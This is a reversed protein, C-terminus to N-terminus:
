YKLLQLTGRFAGNYDIRSSEVIVDITQGYIDKISVRDLVDLCLDGRYEISYREHLKYYANIRNASNNILEERTNRSIGLIPNDYNAVSGWSNGTDRYLIKESRVVPAPDPDDSTEPPIKYDRLVFRTQKFRETELKSISYIDNSSIEGFFPYWNIFAMTGKITINGNRDQCLSGAGSSALLQLADIYSINYFPYLVDANVMNNEGMKFEFGSEQIVKIIESKVTRRAVSKGGTYDGNISEFISRAVISIKYKDFLWSKLYLTNMHIWEIDGNDLTIGMEINVIANPRLMEEITKSEEEGFSNFATMQFEHSPLNETILNAANVLSASEVNDDQFVIEEGLLIGFLDFTGNVGVQISSIDENVDIKIINSNALVEIRPNIVDNNLRIYLKGPHYNGINLTISPIYYKKDWVIEFSALNPLYSYFPEHNKPYFYDSGDLSFSGHSYKVYEKSDVNLNNLVKHGLYEIDGDTLNDVQPLAHIKAKRMAEEDLTNITVKIHGRDRINKAMAEKYAESAIQM